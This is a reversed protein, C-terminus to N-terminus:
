VSSARKLSPLRCITTMLSVAVAGILEKQEDSPKRAARQFTSEGNYYRSLFVVTAITISYHVFYLTAHLFKVNGAAPKNQGGHGCKTIM